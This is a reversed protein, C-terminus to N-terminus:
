FGEGVKSLNGDATWAISTKPGTVEEELDDQRDALGFGMVVLRRPTGDVQLRDISLRQEEFSKLLTKELYNLSPQIFGAPLEETGIEFLLEAM